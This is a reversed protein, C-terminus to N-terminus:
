ESIAVRVRRVFRWGANERTFLYDYARTVSGGPFETRIMVHVARSVGGVSPDGASGRVQAPVSDNPMGVAVFATAQAPCASHDVSPSMVGGCSLSPPTAFTRGIARLVAERCATLSPADRVFAEDTWDVISWDPRLPRADAVWPVHLSDDISRLVARYLSSDCASREVPAPQARGPTTVVVGLLVLSLARLPAKRSSNTAFMVM